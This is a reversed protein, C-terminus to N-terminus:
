VALLIAVLIRVSSFLHKSSQENLNNQQAFIHPPAVVTRGSRWIVALKKKLFDFRGHLESWMVVIMALFVDVSRSIGVVHLAVDVGVGLKHHFSPDGVVIVM